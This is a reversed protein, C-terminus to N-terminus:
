SQTPAEKSILIKFVVGKGPQSSCRIDGGLKETVLNKVIYMGLGTSGVKKKSTYFADYMKNLTSEDMGKGNDSYYLTIQTDEEKVEITIEGNTQDEFGHIISNLILNTLVQSFAGPYSNLMLHEHCSTMIKVGRKKCEYRMNSKIKQIYDCLDFTERSENMQDVSMTKFNKMLDIASEVSRNLIGTTEGLENFFQTMESKKLEQSEFKQKTKELHYELNSVTTLIIGLPANVEHSIGAVMSGLAAMKEQYVLQSQLDRLDDITTVLEANAEQLEKTRRKVEQRLSISWAFISLMLLATIGVARMFNENKYIAPAQIRIWRDYIVKEQEDSIARVGKDLIRHLLANEKKVVFTLDTTSNYYGAMQLTTIKNKEIIYGATAVDFVTADVAGFAVANFAELLSAYPIIEADPHAIKLRQNWAWGEVTAIKAHNLDSVVGITANDKRTIIVSPIEIYPKTFVMTKKREETVSASTVHIEGTNLHNLVTTWNEPIIVIKLGTSKEVLHIYESSIGTFQGDEGWYEIPPFDEDAGYYIVPHQAIWEKEENTLEITGFCFPMLGIIMICLMLIVKKGMKNEEGILGENFAYGLASLFVCISFDIQAFFSTCWFPM